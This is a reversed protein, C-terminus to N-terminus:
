EEKRRYDVDMSAISCMGLECGVGIMVWVGEM